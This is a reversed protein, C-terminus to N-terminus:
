LEVPVIGEAIANGVIVDAAAHHAAPDDEYAIVTACTQPFLTASYLFVLADKHMANYQPSIQMFQENREECSVAPIMFLQGIKQELTLTALKQAANDAMNQDFMRHLGHYHDTNSSKEDVSYILSAYLISFILYSAKM